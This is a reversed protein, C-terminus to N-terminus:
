AHIPRLDYIKKSFDSDVQSISVSKTYPSQLIDGSRKMAEERSYFGLCFKKEENEFIKTYEVLFM